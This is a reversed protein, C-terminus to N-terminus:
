TLNFRSIFVDMTIILMMLMAVIVVIGFILEIFDGPILKRWSWFDNENKM